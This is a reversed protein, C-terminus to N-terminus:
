KKKKKKDFGEDKKAKAVDEKKSDGKGKISSSKYNSMSEGKLDVDKAMKGKVAM